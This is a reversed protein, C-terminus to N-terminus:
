GRYDTVLEPLLETTLMTNCWIADQFWIGSLTFISFIDEKILSIILM